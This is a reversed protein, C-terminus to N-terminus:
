MTAGVGLVRSRVVGGGILDTMAYPGILLRFGNAPLAAVTGESAIWGPAAFLRTRLGTQELMRDAAMLRLNAEHAALTAFESRMRKTAAEDFGHLVVADGDRRRDRLWEATDDDRDIRYDNKGRPAVFLSLPVSRGVLETRFDHLDSLTRGDIGSVSVILEASM